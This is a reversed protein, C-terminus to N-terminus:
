SKQVLGLYGGILIFSFLVILQKRYSIQKILYHRYLILAFIFSLLIQRSGLLALVVVVIAIVGINARVGQKPSPADRNLVHKAHIAVLGFFGAYVPFHFFMPFDGWSGMFNDRLLSLAHEQGQLAIDALLVPSLAFLLGLVSFLGLLCFLVAVFYTIKFGRRSLQLRLSAVKHPKRYYGIFFMVLGVWSLIHALIAARQDFDFLDPYTLFTQPDYAVLWGKLGYSATFGFAFIAPPTLFDLKGKAMSRFVPFLMIIISVGLCILSLLDM